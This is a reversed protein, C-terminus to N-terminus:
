FLSHMKLNRSEEGGIIENKNPKKMLGLWESYINSVKFVYSHIKGFERLINKPGPSLTLKFHFNIGFGSKVKHEIDNM